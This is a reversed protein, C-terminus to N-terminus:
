WGRFKPIPIPTERFDRDGRCSQDFIVKLRYSGCFPRDFRTSSQSNGCLNEMGKRLDRMTELASQPLVERMWSLDRTLVERLDPYAGFM